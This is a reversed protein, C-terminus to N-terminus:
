ADVGLVDIVFVLTSDGPISPPSGQEGYGLEPPIIMLVRSGVTIGVLGEDWGRILSSNGVAFTAPEKSYSEDFPKREGHVAGLYDFTVYVPRDPIAPGDGEVLTIVQLEDSSAEAADSFDFGTVEDGDVRPVPSDAPAEQEAGEPGALPDQPHVSLLDVVFIVDDDKGLGVQDAGEPGIADEVPATMVVRSGRTKGALAADLGGPLADPTVTVEQARETDFSSYSKEGTTGNVIHLNVLATAGTTVEPGEGAIVVYTDTGSVDFGDVEVTPEEDFEGTVTVGPIEEDTAVEADESGCAVLGGLLLAVAPLVVSRRPM